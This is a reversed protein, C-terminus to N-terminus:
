PRPLPSWASSSPRASCPTTEVKLPTAAAVMGLFITERLLHGLAAAADAHFANIGLILTM